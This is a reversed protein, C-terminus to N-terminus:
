LSELLGIFKNEMELMIPNNMDAEISWRKLEDIIEKKTGYMDVMFWEGTKDDTVWFNDNNEFLYHGNCELLLKKM